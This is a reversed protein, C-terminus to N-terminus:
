QSCGVPPSTPMRGVNITLWKGGKVGTKLAALMRDTWVAPEVWCWRSRIDGAQRSGMPTVSAPKSEKSANAVYGGEQPGKSWPCQGAECSTHGSQSRVANERVALDGQKM